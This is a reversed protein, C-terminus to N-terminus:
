NIDILNIRWNDNSYTVSIRVDVYQLGVIKLSVNKNVLDKNFIFFRCPNNESDLLQITYFYKEGEKLEDANKRKVQELKLFKFVDNIEM